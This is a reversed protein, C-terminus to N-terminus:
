QPQKPTEHITRGATHVEANVADTVFSAFQTLFPSGQLDQTGYIAAFEADFFTRRYVEIMLETYSEPPGTEIVIDRAHYALAAAIRSYGPNDDAVEAFSGILDYLDSELYSNNRMATAMRAFITQDTTM